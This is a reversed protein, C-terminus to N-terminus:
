RLGKCVAYIESSTVRSSEPKELILKEFSSRLGAIIQQFDESRFLKVLFVGDRDLKARAIEEAALVLEYHRASDVSAIGSFKPALDSLVADVKGEFYPNLGTQTLQLVDAQIFTVNAPVNIRLQETDVAFIHGSAGVARSEYAVWGGPSSGLDLLKMGNHLLRQRRDIQALKYYARSPAGIRQARKYYTDSGHRKM